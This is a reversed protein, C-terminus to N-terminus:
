IYATADLGEQAAAHASFLLDVEAQSPAGRLSGGAGKAAATFAAWHGASEVRSAYAPTFHDRSAAFDALCAAVRAQSLPVQHAYAIAQAAVLGARAAASPYAGWGGTSDRLYPQEFTPDAFAFSLAMRPPPPPCGPAPPLPASGWHLLRHTFALVSGAPCPLALIVQADEPSRLVAALPGTGAEGQPDGGEYGTDYMRPICYLCSSEPTADTLPVWVTTYRASGDPRLSAAITCPHEGLPRDRHPPWGRAGAAGADETHEVHFVFWDHIPVNRSGQPGSVTAILPALLAQVLWTEDYHLIASPAHGAGRLVEIGRALREMLRRLLPTGGWSLSDAPLKLVGFHALRRAGDDPPECGRRSVYHGEERGALEGDVHLFPCLEKWM